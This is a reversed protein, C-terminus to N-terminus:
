ALEFVDKLYAGKGIFFGMGLVKLVCEILFATNFYIDFSDIFENRPSDENVYDKLGLALSNLIILILIIKDFVPWTIIWVIMIRFRSKNDLFGLANKSFVHQKGHVRFSVEDKILM